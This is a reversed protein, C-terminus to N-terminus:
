RPSHSVDKQYLNFFTTGLGHLVVAPISRQDPIRPSFENKDLEFAAVPVLRKRDYIDPTIVGLELCFIVSFTERKKNAESVEIAASRQDRPILTRTEIKQPGLVLPQFDFFERFTDGDNCTASKGEVTPQKVVGILSNIAAPRNGSNLFTVETKNLSLSIEPEGAKDRTVFPLPQPEMVVRLNDEAKILNVFVTFSSIVLALASFSVSLWDKFIM